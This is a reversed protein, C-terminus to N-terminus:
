WFRASAVCVSRRLWRWSRAARHDSHFLDFVVVRQAGAFLWRASPLNQQIDLQRSPRILATEERLNKSYQTRWQVWASCDDFEFPGRDAQQVVEANLHQNQVLDM